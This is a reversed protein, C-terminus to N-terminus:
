LVTALLKRLSVWSKIIKFVRMLRFARLVSLGSSNAQSLLEVFSVIVIIGDFVNFGDSIYRKIGLGFLKLLMEATFIITFFINAIEGIENQRQTQNYHESALFLMNIIIFSIITRNMIESEVIKEAVSSWKICIPPSKFKM